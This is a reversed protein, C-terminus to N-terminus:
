PRATVLVRSISIPMKRSSALSTHRTATHFIAAATTRARPTSATNKAALMALSRWPPQSGSTTAPTTTVTISVQREPDRITSCRRRWISPDSSSKM